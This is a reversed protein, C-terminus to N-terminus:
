RTAAILLWRLPAVPRQGTSVLCIQAGASLGRGMQFRRGTLFSASAGLSRARGRPGGIRLRIGPCHRRGNEAIVHVIKV